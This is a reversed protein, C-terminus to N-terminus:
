KTAIFRSCEKSVPKDTAIPLRLTLVNHMLERARKVQADTMVTTVTSHRIIAPPAKSWRQAQAASMVISANFAAAAGIPVLVPYSEVCRARALQEDMRPETASFSYGISEYAGGARPRRILVSVAPIKETSVLESIQEATTNDKFEATASVMADPSRAALADINGDFKFAASQGQAPPTASQQAHALGGSACLAVAWVCVRVLAVSGVQLAKARQRM